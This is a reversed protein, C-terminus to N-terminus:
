QVRQDRTTWELAENLTDFPSFDVDGVVKAVLFIFHRRFGSLGIIARRRVYKNTIPIHKRFTQVIEDNVFTGELNAIVLVSKPPENVLAERIAQCEESIAAADSGCNSFEAIFIRRDKHLTWYSKM